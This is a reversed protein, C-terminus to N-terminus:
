PIDEVSRFLHIALLSNNRPAGTHSPMLFSSLILDMFSSNFGGSFFLDFFVVSSAGNSDEHSIMPYSMSPFSHFSKVVIFPYKSLFDPDKFFLTPPLSFLPLKPRIFHVGNFLVSIPDQLHQILRIWKFLFMGTFPNVLCDQHGLLIPIWMPTHSCRKPFTHCWSKVQLLEFVVVSFLVFSQSAFYAPVFMHYIGYRIM